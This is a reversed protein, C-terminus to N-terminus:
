HIIKLVEDLQNFFLGTHLIAAWAGISIAIGYPISNKGLQAQEFWSGKHPNKFPKKNRIILSIVGVLGGIISMYFVFGALGNLGVWLGLATALKSDGGGMMRLIFMIYSIIFMAAMASIHQWLPSFSEPSLFYAPIFLIVISLSHWNPIRLARFDSISSLLAISMIIVTATFTILIM